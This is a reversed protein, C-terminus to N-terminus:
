IVVSEFEWLKMTADKTFPQRRQGHLRAALRSGQQHGVVPGSSASLPRLADDEQGQASVNDSTDNQGFGRHQSPEPHQEDESTSSDSDSTEPIDSPSSHFHRSGSVSLLYPLFPHFSTSGIADVLSIKLGLRVYYFLYLSGDHGQFELKPESGEAALDFVSM